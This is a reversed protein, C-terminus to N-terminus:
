FLGPPDYNGILLHTAARDNRGRVNYGYTKGYSTRFFPLGKRIRESGVEEYLAEIFVTRQIVLLAPCPLKAFSAALREHDDQAFTRNGYSSFETDYPPDLFVFADADLRDWTEEFFADFDLNWLRARGLVDRVEPSFLHEAKKAFDVRNYSIGGYPINFKGGKSFRFM